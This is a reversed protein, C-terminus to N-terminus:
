SEFVQPMLTGTFESKAGQALEALTADHQDASV